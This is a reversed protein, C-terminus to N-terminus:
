AEVSNSSAISLELYTPKSRCKSYRATVEFIADHNITMFTEQYLTVVEPLLYSIKSYM